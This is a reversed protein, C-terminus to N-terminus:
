VTSPELSIKHTYVGIDATIPVKRVGKTLAM